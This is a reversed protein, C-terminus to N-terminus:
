GIRQKRRVWVEKDVTESVEETTTTTTTAPDRLQVEWVKLKYSGRDAQGSFLDFSWDHKSCTIGASLVVGFDEIDFLSGKSLPFSSHPCQQAPTLRRGLARARHDVAHVKGKYRFVLVQDKLDGPLDIDAQVAGPPDHATTPIKFAKCRASIRCDDNDQGIDPFTSALGVFHWAAGAQSPPRFPNM